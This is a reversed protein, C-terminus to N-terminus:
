DGKAKPIGPSVESLCHALVRGAHCFYHTHSLSLSLSLTYRLHTQTAVTYFQFWGSPVHVEESGFLGSISWCLVSVTLFTEAHLPTM